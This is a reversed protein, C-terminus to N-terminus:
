KQILPFWVRLKPVNDYTHSKTLLHLTFQTHTHTLTYTCEGKVLFCTKYM